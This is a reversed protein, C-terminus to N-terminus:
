AQLINEKEKDNQITLKYLLTLPNSNRIILLSMQNMARIIDRKKVINKQRRRVQAKGFVFKVNLSKPLEM